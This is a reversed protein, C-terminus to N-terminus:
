EQNRSEAVPEQMTWDLFISQPKAETETEIRPLNSDGAADDAIVAGATDSQSGTSHGPRRQLAEGIIAALEQGDCPKELFRYIRGENIARVAAELNAQGTLIIRVTDPYERSVVALLQSGSMGPMQEDAVVVDIQERALIQLAEEASPASLIDCDEQRLRKTLAQTISPEDDVLLIKPKM